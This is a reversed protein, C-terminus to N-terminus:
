RAGLSIHGAVNEGLFWNPRIEQLIRAVEPWLTVTM